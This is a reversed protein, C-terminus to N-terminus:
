WEDYQLCFRARARAPWCKKKARGSTQVFLAGGMEGGMLACRPPKGTTVCLRTGIVAEQPAPDILATVSFSARSARQKNMNEGEGGELLVVGMM